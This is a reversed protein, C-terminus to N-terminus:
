KYKLYKRDNQWFEYCENMRLSVFGPDEKLKKWSGGYDLEECLKFFGDGEAFSTTLVLASLLPRKHNHEYVSIDGLVAGIELRHHPISMDFGLGCVESLEQYHIYGKRKDRALEILFTRVKANM